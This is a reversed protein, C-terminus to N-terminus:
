TYRRRTLHFHAICYSSGDLKNHDCFTIRAGEGFPYRCGTVDILAVHLPVIEACRLEITELPEIAPKRVRPKYKRPKRPAYKQVHKSVLGMRAARGILANRTYSTGFNDNMTKAIAAYSGGSVMNDALFQSHEASWNIQVFNM